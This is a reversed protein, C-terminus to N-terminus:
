GRPHQHAGDHAEKDVIGEVVAEEESHGEAEGAEEVDEGGGEGLM